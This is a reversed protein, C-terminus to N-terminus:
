LELGEKVDYVSKIRGFTLLNVFISVISLCSNNQNIQIRMVIVVRCYFFGNKKNSSVEGQSDPITICSQPAVKLSKVSGVSAIQSQYPMINVASPLTYLCIASIQRGHVAPFFTERDNNLQSSPSEYCRRAKCQVTM